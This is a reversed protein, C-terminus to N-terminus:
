IKEFYIDYHPVNHKIRTKLFVTLPMLARQCNTQM